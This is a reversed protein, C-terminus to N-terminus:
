TEGGYNDLLLSTQEILDSDTAYHLTPVAKQASVTSSAGATLILAQIHM